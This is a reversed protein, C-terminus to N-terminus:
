CRPVVQAWDTFWGVLQKLMTCWPWDWQNLRNWAEKYSAGQSHGFAILDSTTILGHVHQCAWRSIAMVPSIGMCSSVDNFWWVSKEAGDCERWSRSVLLGFNPFGGLRPHLLRWLGETSVEVTEVWRVAPNKLDLLKARFMVMGLFVGLVCFIIFRKWFIM